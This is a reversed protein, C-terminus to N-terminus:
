SAMLKLYVNRPRPGDFECFFVRQWQGLVVRGDEVILTVSAGMLSAKVHAPSNGEAHGYIRDWPVLDSLCDILDNKVAPDTGENITLGATTHPCHAVILGDKVGAATVARQLEMSIDIMEDRRSTEISICKM